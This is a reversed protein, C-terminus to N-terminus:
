IRQKDNSYKNELKDLLNIIDSLRVTLKLYEQCFEEQGVNNDWKVFVNPPDNGYKSNDFGIVVGANDIWKDWKSGKHEKASRDSITVIDGIKFKKM